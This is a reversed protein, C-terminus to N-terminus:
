AISIEGAPLAREEGNELRVILRADGDIGLALAERLGDGDRFFVKRGTALSRRRYEEIFERKDLERYYRFFRNLIEAVLANKVGPRYDSEGFLAGAVDKVGEPFGEAPEWLNLGAGLVVYSLGGTEFDLAGETLIGCIKKGRLYVDNVWKIQTEMGAVKDIAECVSVAAASTILAATRADSKPKLLLSFYIGTDPPSFFERGSRGRGESQGNSIVVKGEGAGREFLSKLVTNTSSVRDLVTFSLFDLEPSLRKRIGHGSVADSERSLRYGRNTGADILYGSEMLARVAKWVANRSVGLASALRAGSVFEGQNEELTELVREKLGM